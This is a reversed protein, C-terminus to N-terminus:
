KKVEPRLEIVQVAAAKAEDLNKYYEVPRMEGKAWENVYRTYEPNFPDGDNGGPVQIWARPWDGTEVVIKFVAGHHAGQGRITETSGDMDLVEGGFGPLHGIHSMAARNFDRWIWKAPDDGYDHALNTVAKHFAATVVDNLQEVYETNKNDVWKADSDHPDSAVRELLWAVRADKPYLTKELQAVDDDFLEEKLAKLWSKYVTAESRSALIKFDWKKLNEVLQADREALGNSNLRPLMLPLLTAAQMDFSDNQMAMLDEPSLKPKSTLHRRINMGRWPPEYDWGLYEPYGPPVIKQNASELFGQAPNKSQPVVGIAKNMGESRARGDMIFRGEGVERKPVFGAHKWGINKRDVCVWNQIPVSWGAFNNMCEDVNRAVYQARIAQLEDLSKHGAWDAVLGLKGERHLLYGLHTRVVDVRASGFPKLPVTEQTLVAEEWHDKVKYKLSTDNEFEIEYFDLVDTTGNTPGWAIDKNLGNIIGPIAALAVGYVNFEPCHLQVEYWINPLTINLHTDNALLSTGTTSKSPAVAWNNSGRGPNPLPYMPIKQLGSVFEFQEPTEPAHPTNPRDPLVFDEYKSPVFEPFLDLVGAAGLKKLNQTLHPDFSRAALSYTLARGMHVINMPTFRRPKLGLVKYEPPLDSLRDTYANVGDSYAELMTATRPNHTYQALTNKASERMGFKLFFEDYPLAASGFMETLLGDTQRTSADLQFLRQSATVFGQALYLDRESQAFFHPVGYKDITVTVPAALGLLDQSQLKQRQHEWVGKRVELMPGLAPVAPLGIGLLAAWAAAAIVWLLSM